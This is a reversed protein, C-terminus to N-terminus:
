SYRKEFIRELEELSHGKTEPLFRAYFALSGLNVLAFILFVNGQVLEILNPFTFAVIINGVWNSFVAVGNALGRVRMPFIEALMLWFTVGIFCQMFFLFTLMFLLVLYSRATSEPLLFTLWLALLSAVCGTQGTLIMRRRPLRKLFFAIGIYVSIVSVVGNAITAVISAQAGLGTSILITPAYYMIGNVGTLQSLFALGIGIFTIRRIWPVRLDAWSGKGMAREEEVRHLIDEGEGKVTDPTRVENLVDWMEQARGKDALWRPSEPLLHIGIWLGIAPLTALVLMWRWANAGPWATAIVANSTYALLQGTVIMLENRSVMTGRIEVPSIESLYVPVTASAGGVALGLVFRSVTLIGMSPSLSCGLAGVLFIVAVTMINRKRGYRDSLRGGVLAGVAAGVTLAATVVSEDFSDLGLGGESVPNRLFPLAGSIVGTDYGFLLGGLTAISRIAFLRRDVQRQSTAPVHTATSM